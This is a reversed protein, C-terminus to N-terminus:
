SSCSVSIGKSWEPPLTDYADYEAKEEYPVELAAQLAHLETYDGEQARSIATQALHNRLVRAPNNNLMLTQQTSLPQTDNQRRQQFRQLWTVWTDSHKFYANLSEGSPDKALARFTYTYDAQHQQMVDLLDATLDRDDAIATLGLKRAMLADYHEEFLPQYSELANKLESQPVLPLLAHALANLNWLGIAPQQSFRYRGSHDSHNCIFHPDYSDLFGYPGFDFTIGLISMNDTNLVGHAFGFAQWYAVLEATKRTVAYFFAIYQDRQSGSEGILLDDRYAEICYDLLQKLAAQQNTHSFFEFHGFRIHSRALRVVTAASEISERAVPEDSGILCLARSSPIGLHHLAESALYERISSRLVARGDGHRSYPTPGSGKLHLDWYEGSPAQAEGLLVGRGDGLQPSYGGFQHGAYVMALPQSGPILQQGSFFREWDDAKTKTTDIGILAAASTSSSIFKPNKLPKPTVPSFFDAGLATFNHALTLQDLSKM